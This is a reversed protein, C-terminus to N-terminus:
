LITEKPRRLIPQPKLYTLSRWLWELPGIRFVLLWLTALIALAVYIGLVVGLLELRSFSGFYGFGWSYMLTTALVTEGIYVSLAVRGVPAFPKLLPVARSHVLLCVASALGICLLSAGADHMPQTVIILWGPMSETLVPIFLATSAVELPLGLGLGILALRRQLPRADPRFFGMRCLGAGLLFMGLIRWGYQIMSIISYGWTIVRFMLQDFLPGEQYATAEAHIWIPSQPNFQADGMAELGLPPVGEPMPPPPPQYVASLHQAGSCALSMLVSIALLTVAVTAMTRPRAKHFGLLIFGFCAYFCLIDGYWFALAHVLGFALLILLRRAYLGIFPANRESARHAQIALGAGFLLSFLSIFKMEFFTRTFAYAAQDTTALEAFNGPMMGAMLPYAFLQINVFLIGLLAVGRLVDLSLLREGPQVPTMPLAPPAPTRDTPPALADAAPELEGLDRPAPAPRSQSIPGQATPDHPQDPNM